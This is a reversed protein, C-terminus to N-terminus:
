TEIFLNKEKVKSRFKDWDLSYRLGAQSEDVKEWYLKSELFSKLEKKVPSVMEESKWEYMKGNKDYLCGLNVIWALQKFSIDPFADRIAQIEGRKVPNLFYFDRLFLIANHFYAPFALIGDNHNFRALYEFLDFFKKGLGLGPYKQGPLPTFEKSFRLLPNQLTLWELVLFSYSEFSFEFPLECQPIYRGERIKLDVVLSEPSPSRNFLLLRQLPPFATSDVLVKIPWLNRKKAEKVFSRKQMVRGAERFTYKGLFLSSGRKEELEAFLDDQEILFAKRDKSKDKPKEFM